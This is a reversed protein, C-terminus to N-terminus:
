EFRLHHLTPVLKQHHPSLSNRWAAHEVYLAELRKLAEICALHFEINRRIVAARKQTARTVLQMKPEAVAPVLAIEDHPSPVLVSKKAM